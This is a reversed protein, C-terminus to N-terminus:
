KIYKDIPLSDILHYIEETEKQPLEQLPLRDKRSMFGKRELAAKIVLHWGYKKVGQEFFPKDIDQLLMDCQTRKGEKHLNWFKIALKPEFVGTGNLWAQCGQDAFRIWQRMGGGSIIVAVRDKVMEIVQRSYDDDKADEKIAIVHSLDAIRDILSIPWQVPPGGLGNLFPMEHVLIGIDAQDNIANYHNFIQDESFFRERCIISIIDAGIQSAHQTFEISVKTSCHLPDAVIMVNDRDLGKVVRTSFASLSRIEDWSLQSFRGNYGMVYFIRAGSEFAYNIYKEQASYDIEETKPDFPTLLSFVPGQIRSRVKQHHKM